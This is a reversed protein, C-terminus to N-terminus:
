NIKLPKIMNPYTHFENLTDWRDKLISRFYSYPGSQMFNDIDQNTREMIVKEFDFIKDIMPRVKKLNMKFKELDFNCYGFEARFPYFFTSLIFQDNESFISGVKRKVSTRDFPSMGHSSYDQSTPDGWWIEDQMTMKYLSENDQIGMWKCLAPITKKPFKKLDELRVEISKNKKFIINDM